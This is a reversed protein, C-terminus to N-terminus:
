RDEAKTRKVRVRALHPRPDLGGAKALVWVMGNLPLVVVYAVAVALFVFLGVAIDKTHM